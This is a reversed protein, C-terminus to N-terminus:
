VMKGSKKGTSLQKEVCPAVGDVPVMRRGGVVSKQALQV